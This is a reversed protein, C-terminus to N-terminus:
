RLPVGANLPHEKKASGIIKKGNVFVYEVGQPAATTETSTTNDRINDWDFVTVDAPLGEALQGRGSLGFREAAAGTMKRVAEELPLLRRDRALQLLRPFAGFAAPNQVGSPEVWADTMFLAAPHRMLAEVIKDTSGHHLLVKAHGGSRRSIDILADVPSMRRLRAIDHLFRGNHEALELDVTNTIQIDAPGFGIQREAIRLERKLRRLSSAEGYGAAGRALFWAPLVVQIMSAGCHFPTLDFKVDLGDKLASDIAAIGADATRWARAGAFFLHSIQLRVGTARALNIVEELAQLSQGRRFPSFARPHVALIKSKKKVLRAVERLEDPRAFAGPEYQLGLSVGRAGQDMARELLWLMEMTEYPHLPSTINGRISARTSGHGVLLAINQSTGSSDLRDFYDAVTEWQAAPPGVSLMSSVRERWATGERFGASSLGCNGAVVTTIGQALFPYKLEDHGKVPIHWDLHSHADIFGPAVVRGACDIIVGTTRLARKSIRAVKGSRILLHATYPASGSGDVILGGKLLIDPDKGAGTPAM